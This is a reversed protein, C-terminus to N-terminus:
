SKGVTRSWTFMETRLIVPLSAYTRPALKRSAGVVAFQRQQQQQQQQQGNSSSSTTTSDSPQLPVGALVFCTHAQLVCGRALLAEGLAELAQEAGQMHGVALAAAHQRWMNLVQEAAAPNTVPDPIARSRAGSTLMCVTSLPSAPSLAAVAYKEVASQWEVAGLSSALILALPWAHCEIAAQLAETKRGSLVLDQISQLGDPSPTATSHQTSAIVPNAAVGADQCLAAALAADARDNNAAGSANGNTGGNTTTPQLPTNLTKTTPPHLAQAELVAWLTYLAAADSGPEESVCAEKRAAFFDTAKEKNLTTGLPGPFSSLMEIRGKISSHGGGAGVPRLVDQPLASLLHTTITGSTSVRVLRGGFTLKAFGCSPHLDKQQPHYHQQHQQPQLQQPLSATAVGWAPPATTTISPQMYPSPHMASFENSLHANMSPVFTAPIPATSPTTHADALVAQQQQHPLFSHQKQQLKSPPTPDPQQQQQQQQQQQEYYGSYTSGIQGEQQSTVWDNNEAVTAAAADVVVRDEQAVTYPGPPGGVIFDGFSAEPTPSSAVKPDSNVVEEVDEQREQEVRTTADTKGNSSKTSTTTAGTHGVSTGLYEHAQWQQSSNDWFYKWGDESLYYCYGADDYWTSGPTHETTMPAAVHQQQPIEPHREQQQGEEEEEEKGAVTVPPAPIVDVQDEVQQYHQQPQQDSTFSADVAPVDNRLEEIVSPLIFHSGGEEKGENGDNDIQAFFDEDNAAHQQQYQASQQIPVPSPSPSAAVPNYNHGYAIPARSEVSSSEQVVKETAGPASPPREEQQGAGPAHPPQWAQAPPLWASGASGTSPAYYEGPASTGDLNFSDLADASDAIADFESPGGELNFIPANCVAFSTVIYEPEPEPVEAVSTPSTAAMVPDVIASANGTPLPPLASSSGGGICGGSSLPPLGGSSMRDGNVSPAPSASANTSSGARAMSEAAALASIIGASPSRKIGKSIPRLSPPVAIPSLQQQDYENTTSSPVRIGYDNFQSETATHPQEEAKYTNYSPATPTFTQCPPPPTISQRGLIVPQAPQQEMQHSVPKLAQFSPVAAIFFTLLPM